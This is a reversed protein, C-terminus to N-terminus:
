SGEEFSFVFAHMFELLPSFLKVSVKVESSIALIMEIQISAFYSWFCFHSLLLKSPFMPFVLVGVRWSSVHSSDIVVSGKLEGM